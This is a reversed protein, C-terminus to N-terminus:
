EGFRAGTFRRPWRYIERMTGVWDYWGDLKAIISDANDDGTVEYRPLLYPDHGPRIGGYNTTVASSFGARRVEAAMVPTALGLSTAGGPYAFPRAGSGLAAMLQAQSKTLDARFDSLDNAFNRHTHSHSGFTVLGDSAMARCQDWTLPRWLDAPAGRSRRNGWGDFPFPGDDGIFSTALFVTAPIQLRRLIPFAEAFVCSYGDDFTVAITRAAPLEGKSSAGIIDALPMFQYGRAKLDALQDQFVPPMVNWTPPEGSVPVAAVRHYM